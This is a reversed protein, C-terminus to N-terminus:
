SSPVDSLSWTLTTTYAVADKVTKGPVELRVNNMTAIWEGAGTKATANMIPSSAGEPDLAIEESTSPAATGWSSSPTIKGIIIESGYLEKNVTEENKLQGNQKVELLWGANTGRLDSVDVTNADGEATYVEDEASIANLKFNLNSASGLKLAGGSTGGDKEFSVSGTATNEDAFVTTGGSLATLLIASTTCIKILKM